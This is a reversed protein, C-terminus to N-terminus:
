PRVETAASLPYLSACSVLGIFRGDPTAIYCHNMTGAPPCGPPSKIARVTAGDSPMYPRRDFRDWGNANFTYLKGTRIKM